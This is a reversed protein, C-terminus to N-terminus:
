KELCHTNMGGGTWGPACDCFYANRLDHCKSAGGCVVNLSACENTENCIKKEGGGEWGPACFCSFTGAGNICKSAGGCRVNECEDIDSCVKNKGGGKWGPACTCVFENSGDLCQSEPSWIGGQQKVSELICERFDPNEGVNDPWDM